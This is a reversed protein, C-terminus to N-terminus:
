HKILMYIESLQKNLATAWGSANCETTMGDFFIVGRAGTDEVWVM